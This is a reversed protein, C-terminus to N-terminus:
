QGGGRDTRRDAEATARRGRRLAGVTAACRESSSSVVRRVGYAGLVPVLADAQQGGAVSLPRARDNGQWDGRPHALAHRLVVLPQTPRRYPRAEDLLEVDRDYDLLRRAKLLPVWRVEDIEANPRYRSVDDDGLCWGVWYHVVKARVTGDGVLYVQLPLPPGLRVQLGTEEEVERVAAARPDEDPDLKGKPFSWDDYKPRHVLLVETTSGERRLTVTGAATVLDRDAMRALRM